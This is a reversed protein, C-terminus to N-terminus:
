DAPVVRAVWSASSPATPTTPPVEQFSEKLTQGLEFEPQYPLLTCPVIVPHDAGKRKIVMRSTACMQNDPKTGVKNWCATTIEPVDLSEDMEPFLTLQHRNWADM